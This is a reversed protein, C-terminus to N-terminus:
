AAVMEEQGTLYAAVVLDSAIYLTLLESREVRDYLAIVDYVTEGEGVLGFTGSRGQEVKAKGDVIANKRPEGYDVRVILRAVEAADLADQAAPLSRNMLAAVTRGDVTFRHPRLGHDRVHRLLANYAREAATKGALSKPRWRDKKTAATWASLSALERKVPHRTDSSSATLGPSNRVIQQLLEFYVSQARQGKTDLCWLAIAYMKKYIADAKGITTHSWPTELLDRLWKPKWNPNPREVAVRQVQLRNLPRLRTLDCLEGEFTLPQELPGGRAIHRGLVRLLGADKMTDSSRPYLEVDGDAPNVPLVDPALAVADAHIRQVLSAAVSRPMMEAFTGIIKAKYPKSGGTLFFAHEIKLRKLVEVYVPVRPDADKDIDIAIFRVLHRGDAQARTGVCFAIAIEGRLHQRLADDDIFVRNGRYSGDPQQTVGHYLHLTRRVMAVYDGDQIHMTARLPAFGTM